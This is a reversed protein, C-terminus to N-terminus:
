VTKNKFPLLNQAMERELDNEGIVNYKVKQWKVIVIVVCSPHIISM